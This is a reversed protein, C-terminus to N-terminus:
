SGPTTRLRFVVEACVMGATLGIYLWLGWLYDAQTGLGSVFLPISSVCAFGWFLLSMTQLSRSNKKFILLLNSIFPLVPCLFFLVVLYELLRPPYGDTNALTFLRALIDILGLGFWSIVSIGSMPLGCFDGELRINPASCVYEAPVYIRDFVWPGAIALLFLILAVSRIVSRYESLRWM